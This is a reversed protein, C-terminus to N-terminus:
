SPEADAIRDQQRRAVALAEELVLKGEFGSVLVSATVNRFRWAVTFYRVDTVGVQRLTMAVAGDGIEPSRLVRVDGRRPDRAADEFDDRYADLDDEAGSKGEFLDVLSEVVLAGRTDPTADRRYRAKWGGLRGFRAPDAREGLPADATGQPGEDFQTFPPPLDSPQLVLRPLQAATLSAEEGGLCGTTLLALVFLARAARTSAWTNSSM